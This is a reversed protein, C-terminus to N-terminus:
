AQQGMLWQISYLDSDFVLLLGVQTSLLLQKNRTVKRSGRVHNAESMSSSTCTVGILAEWTHGLSTRGVFKHGSHIPLFCVCVYQM